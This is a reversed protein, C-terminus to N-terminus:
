GNYGVEFVVLGRSPRLAVRIQYSRTAPQRAIYSYSPYISAELTSTTLLDSRNISISKGHSFNEQIGKFM